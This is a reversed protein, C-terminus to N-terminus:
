SQAGGHLRLALLMSVLGVLAAASACWLMLGYGGWAWLWSGAFPALAM